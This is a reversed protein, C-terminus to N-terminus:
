LVPCHCDHKAFGVKKVDCRSESVYENCNMQSLMAGDLLWRVCFRLLQPAGLFSRTKKEQKKKREKEKEEEIKRERVNKNIKNRTNGFVSRNGSIELSGEDLPINHIRPVGDPLGASLWVPNRYVSICKHMRRGGSRGCDRYKVLGLSKLNQRRVNEANGSM